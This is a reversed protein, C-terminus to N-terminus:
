PLCPFKSYFAITEVFLYGGGTYAHHISSDSAPFYPTPYKQWHLEQFYTGIGQMSQILWHNKLLKLRYVKKTVIKNQHINLVM